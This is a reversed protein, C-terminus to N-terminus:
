WPASGESYSRTTEFESPPKGLRSSSPARRASATKQPASGSNKAGALDLLQVVDEEVAVPVLEAAVPHRCHHSLRAPGRRLELEREAAAVELAVGTARPEDAVNREVGERRAIEADRILRFM